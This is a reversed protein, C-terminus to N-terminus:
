PSREYFGGWSGMDCEQPCRREREYKITKATPDRHLRLFHLEHSGPTPLSDRDEIKARTYLLSPFEYLIKLLSSDEMSIDINDLLGLFVRLHKFGSFFPVREM